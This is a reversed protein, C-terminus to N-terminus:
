GRGQAAARRCLAAEWAATIGEPGKWWARAKGSPAEDVPKVVVPWGLPAAPRLWVRRVQRCLSFRATRLPPKRRALNASGTATEDTV